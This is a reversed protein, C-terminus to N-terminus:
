CGVGFVESLLEANQLLWPPFYHAWVSTVVVPEGHGVDMDAAHADAFARRAATSGTVHLPDHRLGNEQQHSLIPGDKVRKHRIKTPAETSVVPDNTSVRRRPGQGSQVL